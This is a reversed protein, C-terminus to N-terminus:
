LRVPTPELELTIHTRYSEIKEVPVGFSQNILTKEGELQDETFLPPLDVQQTASVAYRGDIEYSFARLTSGIGFARKNGYTEMTEASVALCFNETKM